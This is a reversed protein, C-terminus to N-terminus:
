NFKSSYDHTMIKINYYIYIYVPMSLGHINRIFTFVAPDGQKVEVLGAPHLKIRFIFPDPQCMGDWPVLHFYFVRRQEGGPYSVRFRRQPHSKTYQDYLLAHLERVARNDPLYLFVWVM